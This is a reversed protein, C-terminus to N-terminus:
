NPAAGLTGAGLAMMLALVGVVGYTFGRALFGARVLFRFPRSSEVAEIEFRATDSMETATRPLACTLARRGAPCIRAGYAAGTAGLSITRTSGRPRSVNATDAASPIIPIAGAARSRTDMRNVAKSAPM